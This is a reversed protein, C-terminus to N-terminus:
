GYYYRALIEAAQKFNLGEKLELFTFIDGHTQCGFCMFHNDPFITFSPHQENHFPCLGVYNNGTKRLKIGYSEVVERLGIIEKMRETDFTRLTKSSKPPNSLLRYQWLLRNLRKKQTLLEGEKITEIVAECIPRAEKSSKAHEQSDFIRRHCDLILDLTESIKARLFERAEESNEFFVQFLELDSLRVSVQLTRWEKEIETFNVGEEIGPIGNRNKIVKM